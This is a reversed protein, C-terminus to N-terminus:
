RRRLPALGLWRRGGPGPESTRATIRAVSPHRDRVAKEFRETLTLESAPCHACAGSLRVEVAGDRVSVLDVAGGHSRVYDGVDGDIVQQVAMRLVDDASGDGASEWQAPLSLAEQLAARVRLGEDRWHRTAGLRTRVATPEVTLVAVTGDELLATLCQPVRVPEGVFGLTGAPVVWRVELPDGEVSEPHLPVLDNM